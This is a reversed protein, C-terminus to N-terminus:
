VNIKPCFLKSKEIIDTGTEGDGRTAAMIVRGNKFQAFISSGDLKESIILDEHNNSLWKEITDLKMKDLSGLIYPLSIKQRLPSAGVEQFYPDDPFLSKAKTKLQDYELDSILTKESNYYAADCEKLYVILNVNDCM